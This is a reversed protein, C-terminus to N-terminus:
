IKPNGVRKKCPKGNLRVRKQSTGIYVGLSLRLNGNRLCDWDQNEATEAGVSNSLHPHPRNSNQRKVNVDDISMEFSGDNQKMPSNDGAEDCEVFEVKVRVKYKGMQYGKM